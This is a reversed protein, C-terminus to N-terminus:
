EVVLKLAIIRDGLRKIDIIYKNWEKDVIISVENRTGVKCHGL